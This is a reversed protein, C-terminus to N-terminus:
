PVSVAPRMSHIAFPTHSKSGNPWDFQDDADSTRPRLQLWVLLLMAYWDGFQAPKSTAPMYASDFEVWQFAGSAAPPWPRESPRCIVYVCGSNWIRPM